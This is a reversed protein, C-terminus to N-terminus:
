IPHTLIRHLDRTLNPHLEVPMGKVLEINPLVQKIAATRHYIQEMEKLTEPALPRDWEVALAMVEIAHKSAAPQVEISSSM